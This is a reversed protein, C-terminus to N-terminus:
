TWRARPVASRASGGEVPLRRRRARRRRRRAPRSRARPRPPGLLERRPVSHHRVRARRRPAARRSAPRERQPCRPLRLRSWRAPPWSPHRRGLYQHRMGLRHGTQGPMSASTARDQFARRRIGTRFPASRAPWATGCLRRLPSAPRGSAGFCCCFRPLAQSPVSGLFLDDM